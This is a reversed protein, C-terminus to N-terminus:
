DPHRWETLHQQHVVRTVGPQNQYGPPTIGGLRKLKALGILRLQPLFRHPQALRQLRMEGGVFNVNGRETILHRLQVDVVDRSEVRIICPWARDPTDAACDGVAVSGAIRKNAFQATQELLWQAQSPPLPRILTLTSNTQIPFM